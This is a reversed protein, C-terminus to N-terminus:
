DTSANPVLRGDGLAFVPTSPAAAHVRDWTEPHCTFLLVQHTQALELLAGIAAEARDPDFNVFVDDMVVPLAEQRRSFERILGLRVAFYLQELTGRSLEEMEKRRGSKDLVHLTAEGAPALVRTYRGDTIRCFLRSADRIVGPQREREYREKAEALLARAIALVGWKRAEGNLRALLAQQRTRLQASDHQAELRHLQEGLAGRRERADALAANVESLLDEANRKARELEEPTTRALEDKFAELHEGRGAIRELALNRQRIEADLQQRRTRIAARERFVEANEAGGAALLEAMEKDAHELKARRDKLQKEVGELEKKLGERKHRNAQANELREALDDLVRGADETDPPALACRRAVEGVRTRYAQVTNEMDAIRGALVDISKKEERCQRILAIMELAGDPTIDSRLGVSSLWKAWESRAVSVAKRANKVAEQAQKHEDQRANLQESARELSQAFYHRSARRARRGMYLYLSGSALIVGISIAWAWEGLLAFVTAGGIGGALLVLAPWLAPEGAQELAAAAETKRAAAEEVAKQATDLRSTADRLRNEADRVAERHRRIAEREAISTDFTYLKEEDWEAGLERLKESLRKQGAEWEQKRLPLDRVANDYHDRGRQLRAIESAQELVREDVAISDIDQALLRQQEELSRIAEVLEKTKEELAELRAIGDPPFSEVAPLQAREREAEALHIWDDWADLQRTARDLQRQANKRKVELQGIQDEMDALQRHLEDYRAINKFSDELRTQVEGLEKVIANIVPKRGGPKFLDSMQNELDRDINPLSARGSGMGASYITTRVAEDNLSEFQQLEWLSFAFINRFLDRTAFGLLQQLIEEGGVGGDPLFVRVPGGRRGAHREIIYREGRQNLLTIRGGHKGGRLPPYRNESMRGDPFGFLVGRLFALLTTKGAENEGRFVSLGPSLPGVTLDNFIGFGDVHITEIRV